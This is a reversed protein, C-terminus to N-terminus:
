SGISIEFQKGNFKIDEIYTGWYGTKNLIEAVCQIVTEIDILGSKVIVKSDSYYTKRITDKEKKNRSYFDTYDLSEEKIFYEGDSATTRNNNVEYIIENKFEQWDSWEIEKQTLNDNLVIQPKEIKTNMINEKEILRCITTQTKMLLSLQEHYLLPLMNLFPLVTRSIM